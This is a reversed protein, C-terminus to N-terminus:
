HFQKPTCPKGQPPTTELAQKPSWINERFLEATVQTPDPLDVRHAAACAALSLCLAAAIAHPRPNM